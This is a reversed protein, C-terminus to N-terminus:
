KSDNLHQWFIIVDELVGQSNYSITGTSLGYNELLLQYFGEFEHLELQKILEQLRVIITSDSIRLPKALSTIRVM